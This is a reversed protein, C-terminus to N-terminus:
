FTYGISVHWRGDSEGPRPDIKHGYLLGMPGIPTIYRLGVGVSSRFSEDYDPDYTDGVLGTDYFLTLEFDHGLDVRSELSLVVAKRGGLADGAADYALLNEDYGRVNEIGGLYFLQDDPVKSEDGYPDIYGARGLAAFTVRSWPTTYYRVEFKYRLFSDLDDRLGKSMDVSASSYLGKRPRIFSDRTDYTIGPTLSLVSRSRFEDTEEKELNEQSYQTAFQDRQDFDFKLSGTLKGMWKRTFTLSTGYRQTGFPQNFEERREAFTQLAASIRSGLLRPEAIGADARYGIQSLQGSLWIKKNTGLFNIDGTGAKAFVGRDSEYGGGFEVYYPKREEVEVFLDVKRRKERLGVTKMRVSNFIGMDRLDKQASLIGKPSFRDGPEVALENRIIRAKTRFNGSINLDGVEVSPGPDVTYVIAAQHRDESFTVNSFTSVFPFGRESVLASLAQQDENLVKEQFPAGAKLALVKLAEKRAIGPLGEIAVSQVLVQQKEDIKVAIVVKGTAKDPTAETQVVTEPYGERAYLAEIAKRDEALKKPTYAGSALLGPETTLMQNEVRRTSLAVNGSVDVSSVISRPGEDIVFRIHRVPAEPGNELHDEVEVSSTLFGEKRYFGRLQRLSKKLGRDNRNGESLLVVQKELTYRWFHRNGSFAVEYRPGEEITLVVSVRGTDPDLRTRSTITCDPYGKARYFAVLNKVDDKLDKEIFRGGSGPVLSWRWISMKAKLRQDSFSRNGTTDLRELRYYPGKRIDVFVVHNGDQPDQWTGLDVHPAIYGQQKFLREIPTAQEAIESAVYNDGPFVTMANLVKREFLPYAGSVKVDKVLRFPTLKFVLVIHGSEKEADVHIEHFRNCQKLAEITQELIDESFRDGAKIYILSRAMGDWDTKLPPPDVIEIRVGSVTTEQSLGAGEASASGTPSVGIWLCILLVAILQRSLPAGKRASAEVRFGDRRPRQPYIPEKLFIANM